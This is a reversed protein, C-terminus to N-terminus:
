LAKFNGFGLSKGVCLMIILFTPVVEDTKPTSGWQSCEPHFVAASIVSAMLM